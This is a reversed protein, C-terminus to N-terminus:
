FADSSDYHSEDREETRPGTYSYAIYTHTNLPAGHCDEDVEGVRGLEQRGFLACEDDPPLTRRMWKWDAAYVIVSSSQIAVELIHCSKQLLPPANRTAGNTTQSSQNAPAAAERTNRSPTENSRQTEYTHSWIKTYMLTMVGRSHCFPISPM